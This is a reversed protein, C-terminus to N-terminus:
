AAWSLGELASGAASIPPQIVAPYSGTLGVPVSTLAGAQVAVGLHTIAGKLLVLVGTGGVEVAFFTDQLQKTAQFTYLIVGPKVCSYQITILQNLSIENMGETLLWSGRPGFKPQYRDLEENESGFKWMPKIEYIEQTPVDPPVLTIDPMEVGRRGIVANPWRTKIDAGIAYHILWGLNQATTNWERWTSALEVTQLVFLCWTLPNWDHGSPDIHNVPDAPGYLYKHLSQPSQPDGLWTDM